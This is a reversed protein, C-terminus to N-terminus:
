GQPFVRKKSEVFSFGEPAIGMFNGIGAGPELARISGGSVGLQNLADYMSKMVARSTYFANPTSRRASHLEEKSLLEELEQGLEQYGERFNGEPDRFAVNAVGGFGSFRALIEQEEKSAPREESELTKLLKISEIIHRLKTKQGVRKIDAQPDIRYNTGKIQPPTPSKPKEAEKVELATPLPSAFIDLQGARSGGTHAANRQINRERSATSSTGTLASQGSEDLQGPPTSGKRKDRGDEDALLAGPRRSEGETASIKTTSLGTFLNPRNAESALEKAHHQGESIVTSVPPLSEKGRTLGMLYRRANETYNGKWVRKGEIAPDQETLGLRQYQKKIGEYLTSDFFNIHTGNKPSYEKLEIHLDGDDEIHV